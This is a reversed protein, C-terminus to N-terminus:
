RRCRGIPFAVIVQLGEAGPNREGLTLHSMHYGQIALRTGNDFRYGVELATRFNMRCGLDECCNAHFYGAAGSPSVYLHDTVPVDAQLGCYVYTSGRHTVQLGALPRFWRKLPRLRAFRVEASGLAVPAAPRSILGVDHSGVGLALLTPDKEPIRAPACSALILLGAWGLPFRAWSMSLM